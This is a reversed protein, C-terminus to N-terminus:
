AKPGLFNCDNEYFTRTRQQSGNQWILYVKEPVLANFANVYYIRKRKQEVDPSLLLANFANAYYIHKRQQELANKPM